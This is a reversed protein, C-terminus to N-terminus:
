SRVKRLNFANRANELSIAVQWFYFLASVLLLGEVVWRLGKWLQFSKQFDMKEGLNQALQASVHLKEMSPLILSSGTLGLALVLFVVWTFLRPFTRGLYLWEIMYHLVAVFGCVVILLYFGQDLLLGSAVAYPQTLLRVMEDSSFGPMMCGAHFVVVGLLIAANFIGAYRTM